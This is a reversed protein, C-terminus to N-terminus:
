DFQRRFRWLGFGAAAGGVIAVAKLGAGAADIGRSIRGSTFLPLSATAHYALSQDESMPLENIALEPIDVSFICTKGRKKYAM